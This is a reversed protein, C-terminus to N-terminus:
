PSLRDISDLVARSTDRAFKRADVEWRLRLNLRFHTGDDYFTTEFTTAAIFRGPLRSTYQLPVEWSVGPRLTLFDRRPGDALVTSALTISFSYHWPKRHLVLGPTLALNDDDPAWPAIRGAPPTSDFVEAQLNVIAELGELLDLDRSAVVFGTYVPVGVVFEEPAGGAPFLATGGLATEVHKAWPASRWNFKGGVATQVLGWGGNKGRVFNPMYPVTELIGELDRNFAYRARFRWRIVERDIVDSGSPSVSLRLLRRDIVKPLQFNFIGGFSVADQDDVTIRRGTPSAPHNTTPAASESATALPLGGALFLPLTTLALFRLCRVSMPRREFLM